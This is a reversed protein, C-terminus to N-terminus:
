VAAKGKQNIHVPVPKQVQRRDCKGQARTTKEARQRETLGKKVHIKDLGKRKLAL